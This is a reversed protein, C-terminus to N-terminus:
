RVSILTGKASTYLAGTGTVFGPYTTADIVRSRAAGGLTVGAVPLVGEFDLELRAGEAVSIEATPPLLAATDCVDLRELTV